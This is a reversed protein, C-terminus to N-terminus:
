ISEYRILRYLPATLVAGRITKLNLLNLLLANETSDPYHIAM